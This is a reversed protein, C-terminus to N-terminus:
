LRCSCTVSRRGGRRSGGAPASPTCWTSAKAISPWWGPFTRRGSRSIATWGHSWAVMRGCAVDTGATIAAHQGFNRSLVLLKIRTDAQAQRELWAAGDDTSGDDVFVLEYSLEMSALTAELRNLLEPLNERENRFPLVISLDIAAPDGVTTM